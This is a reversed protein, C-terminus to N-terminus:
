AASKCYYLQEESKVGREKSRSTVGLRLEKSKVGSEESGETSRISSSPHVGGISVGRIPRKSYQLTMSM